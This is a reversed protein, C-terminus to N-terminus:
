RAARGACFNIAQAHEARVKRRQSRTRVGRMMLSMFINGNNYLCFPQPRLYISAACKHKKKGTTHTQQRRIERATRRCYPVINRPAARGRWWVDARAAPQSTRAASIGKIARAFMWYGILRASACHLAWSKSTEPRGFMCVIQAYALSLRKATHTNTIHIHTSYTNTYIHINRAATFYLLAFM